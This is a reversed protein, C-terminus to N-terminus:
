GKVLICIQLIGLFVLSWNLTYFNTIVVVFFNVPTVYDCAFLHRSGLKLVFIECFVWHFFFGNVYDVICSFYLYTLSNKSTYFVLLHVAQVQVKKDARWFGVTSEDVLFFLVIPLFFFFNLKLCLRLARRSLLTHM